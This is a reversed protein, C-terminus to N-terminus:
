ETIVNTIRRDPQGIDMTNMWLQTNVFILTGQPFDVFALQQVNARVWADLHQAVGQPGHAVAILQGHGERHAGGLVAHGQTRNVTVAIEHGPPIAPPNNVVVQQFHQLMEPYNITFNRLIVGQILTPISGVVCTAIPM